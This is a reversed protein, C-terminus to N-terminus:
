ALSESESLAHYDQLRRIWEEPSVSELSGYSHEIDARRRALWPKEGSDQAALPLDFMECNM